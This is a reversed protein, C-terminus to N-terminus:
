IGRTGGKMLREVRGKIPALQRSRDALGALLVSIKPKKLAKERDIAVECSVRYDCTQEQPYKLQAPQQM